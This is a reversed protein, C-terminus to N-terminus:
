KRFQPFVDNNILDQFFGKSGMDRYEQKLSWERTHGKRSSQVYGTEILRDLHPRLLSESAEAALRLDKMTFTKQQVMLHFFRAWDIM